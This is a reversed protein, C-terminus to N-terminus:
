RRFFTERIAMPSDKEDVNGDKNSDYEILYRKRAAARKQSYDAIKENFAESNSTKLDQFILLIAEMVAWEELSDGILQDKEIKTNDPNLIGNRYMYDLIETQAQRHIYKWSNKGSPLFRRLESEFTYIKADSSFLMDDAESIATVTYDVSETYSATKIEVRVTYDGATKYAWDIHWCDESEASKDYVLTPQNGYDPYINLETIAEDSTNFSGSADIRYKDYIQVLQELDAKPFIM